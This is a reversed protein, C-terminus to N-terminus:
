PPNVFHEDLNEYAVRASLRSDALRGRTRAPWPAVKFVRVNTSQHSPSCIDSFVFVCRRETPRRQSLDQHVLEFHQQPCAALRHSHGHFVNQTRKAGGCSLKCSSTLSLQLKLTLQIRCLVFNNKLKCNSEESRIDKEEWILSCSVYSIFPLKKGPSKWDGRCRCKMWETSRQQASMENAHM